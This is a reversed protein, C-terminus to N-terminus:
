SATGDFCCWADMVGDMWADMWEHSWGDMCGGTWKPRGSTLSRAVHKQVPVSFCHGVSFLETACKPDCNLVGSKCLGKGPYWHCCALCTWGDM